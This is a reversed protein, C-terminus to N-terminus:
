ILICTHWMGKTISNSASAPNFKIWTLLLPGLHCAKRKNFYQFICNRMFLCITFSATGTITNTCQGDQAGQLDSWRILEGCPSDLNPIYNFGNRHRWLSCWPTELWRRRSDFTKLCLDFFIDFSRTVSKQPFFEGTVPSKWACFALLASFTEM